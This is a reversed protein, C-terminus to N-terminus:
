PRVGYAAECRDQRSAAFDSRLIAEILPTSWETLLRQGLNDMHADLVPLLSHDATQSTYLDYTKGDFWRIEKGHVPNWLEGEADLFFWKENMYGALARQAEIWWDDYIPHSLKGKLGFEEEIRNSEDQSEGRVERVVAIPSGCFERKMAKLSGILNPLIVRQYFAFPDTKTLREQAEVQTNLYYGMLEFRDGGVAARLRPALGHILM